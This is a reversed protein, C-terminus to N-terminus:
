NQYSLMKEEIAPLDEETVGCTSMLADKVSRSGFSYESQAFLSFTELYARIDQNELAAPVSSNLTIVHDTPASTEYTFDYTGQTFVAFGKAFLRDTREDQHKYLPPHVEAACGYPVTFSFHMHWRDLIKWHVEYTGSASEYICDLRGLREDTVPEIVAKRFGPRLAKLGACYAYIWETVSGYSYHNLSNMGIGTIHGNEDLSNWREWITTAGLKVEYMWGPYEENLLLDYARDSMGFESLTKCLLPTGVFGTALKWNNFQLLKELIEKAQNADGLGETLSLIQGTMTMVACRGSPTYFDHMIGAQVKEALKKYYVADEKLGLIEAAASVIYASKRYYVDAIFAEDTAGQVAEATKPGDLALWDGFHFQKRYGHDDGDVKCIYDVWSKMADYQDSLIREDGSFLYLNWPIITAADGWVCAAQTIHFNPVVFPVLGGSVSQERAMDYLYKRFFAYPDCLYMATASFVQADGTWGMREDRQPCDTPVDLYNGKMGWCTNQILQNVMANGTTLTGRMAIDSYLAYVTMDSEQLHTMGEIKIYRFGYFTFHPVVIRERGDSIIEYEAKASRLNDRYFCDDQLVEGFQLHIRTGEPEHIHLAFIGALNQQTDFVTEGKPTTFLVPHFEQHRVVPLSMRDTLVVEEELVVANGDDKEALTFDVKEGDYINSFTIQSEKVKWSEDTIIVEEQGDQYLIHLEATLKWIDGYAPDTNQANFGFRGRYWGNGLMVSIENEKNLLSTVDYTFAQVWLDYDNCYPTLVEDSVPTDNIKAEFLGLGSIYLRAQKVEASLAFQKTFVPHRESESATTIWKSCWPEEMKGTEFWSEESNVITGDELLVSVCWTYRTRPTMVFPLTSGLPDLDTFGTDGAELSGKKIVIRSARVKEAPNGELRWSFDPQDLCFGFPKTIHNVQLKTIHM